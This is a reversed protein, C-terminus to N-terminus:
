IIPTTVTAFRFKGALDKEFKLEAGPLYTQRYRALRIRSRPDIELFITSKPNLIKSESIAKFFREYIIWANTGDTLAIKPERALNKFRARYDKHSVYPLNTIVIDFKGRINQLLDSQIFSIKVGRARANKRAVKLAAPSIDSAVIQHKLKSNRLAKAISIAICGSGTGLDLIKRNAARPKCSKLAQLALEVLGETEPRPILVDRNVRFRLGYFDKYGLIYAIPEGKERRGVMRTLRNIQIRTLRRAPSMFLFEKSKGLVHALLIEIEVNQYEALAQRITM